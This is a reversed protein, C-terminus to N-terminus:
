CVIQQIRDTRRDYDKYIDEENLGDDPSKDLYDECSTFYFGLLLVTIYYTLRKM